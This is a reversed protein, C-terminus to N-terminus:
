CLPQKERIAGGMSFAASRVAQQLPSEGARQKPGKPIPATCSIETTSRQLRRSMARLRKTAGFAAAAGFIPLPAPVPAAAQPTATAYEFTDLVNFTTTVVQGNYAVISFHNDNQAYAFSPGAVLGVPKGLQFGVASAFTTALTVDGFWPM